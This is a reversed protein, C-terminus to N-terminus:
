APSKVATCLLQTGSSALLTGARDFVRGTAFMSGDRAIASQADVLVYDNNPSPAHFWAAFDLSPALFGSDPHPGVAAPWGMTDLLLASRGADLFPDDFPAQCHVRYWEQWDPSGATRPLKFREPRLVRVDFNSWFAHRKGHEPTLLTRPDPLEEPPAVRPAQVAVHELGEGAAATRVMAEIIPKGEQHMSVRLSESRRTRGLLEVRLEVPAFQAVKLYHCYLAIPRKVQAECGAARLAIACLYGGNPGWIEWDKSLDARYAGAGLPTVQTELDFDM